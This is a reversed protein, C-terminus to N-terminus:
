AHFEGVKIEALTVVEASSSGGMATVTTTKGHLGLKRALEASILTCNAGTDLVVNLNDESNIRGQVVILNENIFQFPLERQHSSALAAKPCPIVAVWIVFTALIWVRNSAM